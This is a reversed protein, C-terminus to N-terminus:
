WASAWEPMGSADGDSQYVNPHSDLLRQAAELAAPTWSGADVAQRVTLCDACVGCYSAAPRTTYTYDIGPPYVGGTLNEALCSGLRQTFVLGAYELSTSTPGGTMQEGRSLQDCMKQFRTVNM